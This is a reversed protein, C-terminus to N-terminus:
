LTVWMDVERGWEDLGYIIGERTCELLAVGDLGLFILVGVMDGGLGLWFLMSVGVGM